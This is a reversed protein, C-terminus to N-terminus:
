PASRPVNRPLMAAIEAATPCAALAGLRTVTLSAAAVAHALAAPLAIDRALGAVLVGCFVDGAGTTDVVDVRPAALTVTGAAGCLVVGEAGRTVAVAAAGALRLAQAAAVPDRGGTLDAAEGANAVILDVDQWGRPAEDWLPSPNLVTTAGRRRGEALVALTTTLALNGQLLLLDGPALDALAGRGVPDFGRAAACASVIANEGDPRVLLLSTDTPAEGEILRLALGREGELSAVFGAAEGPGVAAHFVVEAGARAAAVAQNLGKGGLETSSRSAVLTEGPRPFRPVTLTTDRCLNGIVHVRM